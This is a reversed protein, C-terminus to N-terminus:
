TLVCVCLCVCSLMFLSFHTDEGGRQALERVASAATGSRLSRGCTRRYASLCPTTELIKFNTAEGGPQITLHLSQFYCVGVCVASFYVCWTSGVSVRMSPSIEGSEQLLRTIHIVPPFETEWQEGKLGKFGSNFGM